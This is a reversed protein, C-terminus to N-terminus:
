NLHIDTGQSQYYYLMIWHIENECPREQQLFVLDVVALSIHMFENIVIPWKQLPDDLSSPFLINQGLKQWSLKSILGLM